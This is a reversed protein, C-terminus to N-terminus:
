AQTSAQGTSSETVDHSAGGGDENNQRKEDIARVICGGLRLEVHGMARQGGVADLNVIDLLSPAGEDQEQM